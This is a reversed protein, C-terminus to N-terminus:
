EIYCIYRNQRIRKVIIKVVMIVGTVIAAGIMTAGLDAWEPTGLGALDLLEKSTGLVLAVSLGKIAPVAIDSQPMHFTSGFAALAGGMYAHLKKDPQVQAQCILSLGLLISILTRKM